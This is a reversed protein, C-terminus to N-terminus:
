RWGHKERIREVMEVARQYAREGERGRLRGEQYQELLWTATEVDVIDLQAETPAKSPAPKGIWSM